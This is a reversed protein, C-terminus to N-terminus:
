MGTTTTVGHSLIQVHVTIVDKVKVSVDTVWTAYQSYTSPISAIVIDTTVGKSARHINTALM